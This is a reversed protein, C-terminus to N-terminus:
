FVRATNGGRIQIDDVVIGPHYRGHVCVHTQRAACHNKGKYGITGGTENGRAITERVRQVEDVRGTGPATM